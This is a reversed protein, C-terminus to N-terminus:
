LFKSWFKYDYRKLNHCGFPLKKTTEYLKAPHAEFSFFMAVYSPAPSFEPYFKKAYFAYFSDEALYKVKQLSKDRNQKSFRTYVFQPISLVNSWFRRKKYHKYVERLNLIFKPKASLVKIFSSIKRLSFGGNGSQPILGSNGDEIDNFWPAGIYDYGKDCWMELEDKFVWADAQYILIYEYQEFSRYFDVSLMLQNYADLSQFCKSDFEQFSIKVSNQMALNEYIAVNLGEPCVFFIDYKKLVSFCQSISKLDDEMPTQKYIPIVVACKKMVKFLKIVFMNYFCNLLYM